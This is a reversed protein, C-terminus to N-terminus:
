LFLRVFVDLAFTDGADKLDDAIGLGFDVSNSLSYIGTLKVPVFDAGFGKSNDDKLGIHAINTSFEAFVNPNAQYRAGIPLDIGIPKTNGALGIKLQKGPTFLAVKETIKFQSDVGLELPTLEGPGVDYGLGLGLAARFPGTSAVSYGVAFQLPGKGSSSPSLNFGYAFRLELDERVGYGFGLRTGTVTDGPSTALLLDLRGEIQSFPLVGPRDIVEQTQNVDAFTLGAFAFSAGTFALLQARSKLNM